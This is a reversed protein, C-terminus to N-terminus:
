EIGDRRIRERTRKTYWGYRLDGRKKFLFEKLKSDPMIKFIGRAILAALGWFFLIGFPKAIVAIMAPSIDMEMGGKIERPEGKVGSCNVRSKSTRSRNAVIFCYVSVPAASQGIKATTPPKNIAATPAM